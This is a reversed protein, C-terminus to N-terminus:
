LLLEPAGKVHLVKGQTRPSVGLTAMYKRETSFTWQYDIAFRSRVPVYDIAQDNLWLLLAGETPNGLAKVVGNERGLNATSNVAIAEVILAEVGGRHPLSPTPTSDGASSPAGLGPLEAAAVRMENLTLTGTKDSCIVTTAGITECAHMRRVLNNEATMR